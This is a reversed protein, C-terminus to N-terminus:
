AVGPHARGVLRVGGSRQPRRGSRAPGQGGSLDCFGVHWRDVTTQWGGTAEDFVWKPRGRRVEDIGLVKVPDPQAPLVAAAHVAFAAAAVPWSVEHDQASQM